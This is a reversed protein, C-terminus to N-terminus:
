WTPVELRVTTGKDPAGTVEYSGRALEARQRMLALGQSRMGVKTPDFGRGDDRMLVVLRDGGIRFEVHVSSAHAHKEVNALSGRVTEYALLEVAFPLEQMQDPAEVTARIGTRVQLDAVLKRVGDIVTGPVLTSQRLAELTDRLAHIGDSVAATAKEVVESARVHDNMEILMDATDIQMQAAAFLPLVDDHVEMAIRSREHTAEELIRATLATRARETEALEAEVQLRTLTLGILSAAAEVVAASDDTRDSLVIAAPAAGPIGIRIGDSTAGDLDVALRGGGLARDLTKTAIPAVEATDHVSLLEGSLRNLMELELVRATLEEARDQAVRASQQASHSLWLPIAVLVISWRSVDRVLVVILLSLMASVTANLTFRPFPNASEAMAQAWSRGRRVVLMVALLLTNVVDFSVVALLSAPVIQWSAGGAVVYFLGAAGAAVAGALGHMSRNFLSMALPAERRIERQHLFGFFAFLAVASPPFLIAAAVIAIPGLTTGVEVEPLTSLAVLSSVAILPIWFLADALIGSPLAWAIVAWCAATLAVAYAIMLPSPRLPATVVTESRPVTV